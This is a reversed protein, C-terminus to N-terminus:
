KKIEDKGKHNKIKKIDVNKKIGGPRDMIKTM